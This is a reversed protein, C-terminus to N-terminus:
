SARRLPVATQISLVDALVAARGRLEAGETLVDGLAACLAPVRPACDLLAALPALDVAGRSQAAADRIATLLPVTGEDGAGYAVEVGVMRGAEELACRAQAHLRALRAGETAERELRARLDDADRSAAALELSATTLRARLAEAEDHAKDAAANAARTDDRAKDLQAEYRERLAAVESSLAGRVRALAADDRRADAAVKAADAEAQVRALAARTTALEDHLDQREVRDAADVVPAPAPTQQAGSGPWLRERDPTGRHALGKRVLISIWGHVNEPSSRMASAVEMITIGPRDLILAHLKKAEPTM